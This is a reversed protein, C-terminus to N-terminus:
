VNLRIPMLLFLADPAAALMPRLPSIMTVRARDPM